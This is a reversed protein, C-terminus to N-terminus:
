QDDSPDDFLAENSIWVVWPGSCLGCPRNTTEHSAESSSVCPRRIYIYIHASIQFRAYCARPLTSGPLLHHRYYVFVLWCEELPWKSRLCRVCRAATPALPVKRAHQPALATELPEWRTNQVEMTARLAGPLCRATESCIRAASALCEAARPCARAAIELWSRRQALSM